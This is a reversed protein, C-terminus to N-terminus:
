RPMSPCDHAVTHPCMSLGPTGQACFGELHRHTQAVDFDQSGADHTNHINALWILDEIVKLGERM